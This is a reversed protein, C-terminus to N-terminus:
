IVEGTLNYHIYKIAKAIVQACQPVVANGLGKLRDVRDPIRAAVRGVDPETQWWGGRGPESGIDAGEECGALSRAQPLGREADTADEGRCEAAPSPKDGRKSETRKARGLRPPRGGQRKEHRGDRRTDAVDSSGGRAEEKSKRRQHREQKGREVNVSESNALDKKTSKRKGGMRRDKWGPAQRTSDSYAVIFIRERKHPAGVTAAELLIPQLTKYGIRELDDLVIDLGNGILGPVNEIVVYRPRIEDILRAYHFWLGSRTGEKIGARRGAHSVDQCPFGGTLVEVKPCKKGELTTIDDYIPVGPWHKKLIKQCFENSECFWAVEFGEWEFGLDLGGIGSFLSGIRM